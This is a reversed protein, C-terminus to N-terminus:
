RKRHRHNTGGGIAQSALTSISLSAPPPAWSTKVFLYDQGAGGDVSDGTDPLCCITVM